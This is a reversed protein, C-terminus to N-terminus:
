KNRSMCGRPTYRKRMVYVLKRQHQTEREMVSGPQFEVFVIDQMYLASIEM